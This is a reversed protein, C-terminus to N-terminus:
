PLERRALTRVRGAYFLVPVVFLLLLALADVYRLHTLLTVGSAGSALWGAVGVGVACRTGITEPTALDPWLAFNLTTYFAVALVYTGPLVLPPTADAATALHFVYLLHAFGFLGYVWVLLWRWHFTMYLVGAMAAGVVHAVAIFLRVGLDPSQWSTSIYAPTDIIRLFGLSDIFFVAFMAAVAVAFAPTSAPPAPPVTFRGPGLDQNALRDVLRSPRFALVALVVVAPAMAAAMVTSFRVVDWQQPYLAAVFFALGAPVAAAFGRDPVPVLDAMLSFTVPMGIGIATACVVVWAGFWAPTAVLPAATTLLLQVAVVVTLLRLKVRLDGGWGRRDMRLGGAVSAALAVLALVAMVLSVSRTPMGLRNTGLDILGLQVFTLNYYYGATLLAIYGGYGAVEPWRRGAILGV